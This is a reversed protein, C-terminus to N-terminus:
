DVRCKCKTRSSNWRDSFDVLWCVVVNEFLTKGLCESSNFSLKTRNSSLENRNTSISCEFVNSFAFSSKSAVDLRTRRRKWFCCFLFFGVIQLLNEIQRRSERIKEKIKPNKMLLTKYQQQKFNFQNRFLFSFYFSTKWRVMSWSWHKHKIKSVHTINLSIENIIRGPFSWKGQRFFFGSSIKINKLNSKTKGTTWRFSFKSFNKDNM